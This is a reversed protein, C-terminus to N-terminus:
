VIGYRRIYCTVLEVCTWEGSRTKELVVDVDSVAAIERERLNVNGDEDFFGLVNKQDVPPLRSAPILFPKLERKQAALKLAVLDRWDPPQQDSRLVSMLPSNLHLLTFHPNFIQYNM